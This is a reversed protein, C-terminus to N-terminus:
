GETPMRVRVMQADPMGMMTIATGRLAYLDRARVISPDLEKLQCEMDIADSLLIIIGQIDHRSFVLDVTIGGPTELVVADPRAQIQITVHPKGVVTAVANISEGRKNYITTM